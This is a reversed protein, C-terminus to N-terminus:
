CKLNLINPGFFNWKKDWFKKTSSRVRDSSRASGSANLLKWRKFIREFNMFVKWQFSMRIGLFELIWGNWSCGIPCHSWMHDKTCFCTEKPSLKSSSFYKTLSDPSANTALVNVSSWYDVQCADPTTLFLLILNLKFEFTWFSPLCFFRM